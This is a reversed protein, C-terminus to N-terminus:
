RAKLWSEIPIVKNDGNLSPYVVYTGPYQHVGKIFEYTDIKFIYPYIELYESGSFDTYDRKIPLLAINDIYKSADGLGLEWNCWKSNIAGETALLIFKHNEKIKEKIRVATQGSTTKPMGDDLWDVYVEIGFNKLFSIAGELFEKEDHKHSLFIKTKLYSSESKFNRLSENLSMYTKTSRRQNKIQTETIIAM